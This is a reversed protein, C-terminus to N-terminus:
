RLFSGLAFIINTLYILRRLQQKVNINLMRQIDEIVKHIMDFAEKNEQREINNITETLKDGVEKITMKM